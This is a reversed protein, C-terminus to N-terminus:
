FLTKFNFYENQWHTNLWKVKIERFISSNGTGVWALLHQVFVPQLPWGLLNLSFSCM